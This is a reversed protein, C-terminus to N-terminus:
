KIPAQFVGPPPIVAAIACGKNRFDIGNTLTRTGSVARILWFALTAAIGWRAVSLIHLVLDLDRLAWLCGAFIAAVVVGLRNEWTTFALLLGILALTGSVIWTYIAVRWYTVELRDTSGLRDYQFAYGATSFDFLGSSSTGFWHDLDRTDTTTALIGLLPDFGPRRVPTFGAPDGVLAFQRPVWVALRTELVPASTHEGGTARSDIRPFVLGLQGGSRGGLPKDRFPARFVLSIVFEEDSTTTRSVNVFFSQWDGAVVVPNVELDVKRGAVQTDLLEADRPLDLPLRQRESTKLRYRCRFAVSTDDTVVAEIASKLIVTEAVPQLAFMTTTLDIKLPQTLKEPQRFYRYALYGNQPLTQLDRVDIAEVDTGKASISLSRDKQLSVEGSLGSLPIEAGEDGKGPSPLARLLTVPFTTNAEKRDPKFDYNVVLPVKGTAERQLVVTWIVWDPEGDASSKQKIPLSAPDASEIQVQASISKPVAIRFTDLGAYDVHFNIRTQVEVDAQGVQIVTGVTASLRTPRRSTRVPIEVPRRSWTWASALRTNPPTSGQGLQGRSPQAGQLGKEDTIVEIADPAFVRLAGTERAVALPELIPLSQSEKMAPDLARHGAISVGITGKTKEKLSIVLTDSGAPVQFEKMVECDVRDITLGAPVKFRLEFVGAREVTYQLNSEIRQEDDTFTVQAHHAVTVRPEVPKASVQLQFKPTYYKYFQAEPLRLNQPADGAEVRVAGTQQEIALTLDPSQSLVVLGSERVGGLAHIGSAVGEDDIGAVTFPETPAARETHVQVTITKAEPSVLDVVILQQKEEATAKWSKLGTATVDLIRTGLPAAIRLQDLQGRQVQYTLTTQTHVLGDAVRIHHLAQVSSLLEMVPAISVRPRWRATIKNTAGLQAKVHTVEADGEVVTVLGTGTANNPLNTEATGILEVTQDAIPVTLDVTTVSATPVALEFSRGDPSTRVRTVLELQIKHEGAEPLLLAYTGNGTAQLLIKNDPSSIKGIAADGFQIPLQVWPQGLVRVTFEANLRAVDKEITGTYVTQTLVAGVPPKGEALKPKFAEWLAEYQKYSMFVAGAPLDLITKFNKYPLYILQELEAASPAASAPTVPV